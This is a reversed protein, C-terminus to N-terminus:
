KTIAWEGTQLQGSNFYKLKLVFQKTAKLNNVLLQVNSGQLIQLLHGQHNQFNQFHGFTVPSTWREFIWKSLKDWGARVFMHNSACNRRLMLM